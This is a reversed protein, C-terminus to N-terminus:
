PSPRGPNGSKSSDKACVGLAVLGGAVIFGAAAHVPPPLGLGPNAVVFMAAASVVGCGTTRWNRAIADLIWDIKKLPKAPANLNV